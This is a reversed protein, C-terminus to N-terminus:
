SLSSLVEFFGGFMKEIGAEDLITARANAGLVSLLARDLFLCVIMKAIEHMNKLIFGNFGSTIYMEEPGHFVDMTLVPLGWYMAEVIGLGLSGPVCFIDSIYFIENIKEKDYIPGLYYFNDMNQVKEIHQRTIGPGIVVFAIDKSMAFYRNFIELLIDFKKRKSIRGVFLVINNESIGYKSTIHRRANVEKEEYGDLLLTNNAIFVKKIHAKWLYKCQANSYLLIGDFWIHFINQIWRKIIHNRKTLDVGHGYYISKIKKIKGYLISFCYFFIIGYEKSLINIQIVIGLRRVISIYNKITMAMDIVPFSVPESGEQIHSTWVYLKYGRKLLERYLLNYIKVKYFLLPPHLLLINKMDDTQLPAAAERSQKANRRSGKALRRIGTPAPSVCHQESLRSM